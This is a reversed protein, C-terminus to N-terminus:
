RVLLKKLKSGGNAAKFHLFYLGPSLEQVSLAHDHVEGKGELLRKRITRGTADRLSQEVTGEGKVRIRVRKDAPNPHVDVAFPSKEAEKVSLVNADAINIDDIYINNGGDSIFQFKFRLGEVNYGASLTQKVRLTKWDQPDPNKYYGKMPKGSLLDAVDFTKRIDWVGNCSKQAFVKLKGKNDSDIQRYAVKFSLAVPDLDSADITETVLEYHGGKTAYYNELIFSSHGSAGTRETHAWETGDSSPLPMVKGRQVPKGEMDEKYPTGAGKADLVRIFDKEHVALTDKGQRVELEVDYLGPKQYSVEPLPDNLAFFPTGKHFTWRRQEIGHYSRDKFQVKQGTCVIRPEARLDVRCLPNKQVGTMKLNQSSTLKELGNINNLATKMRGKQGKSFMNQCQDYSMYNEIQDVVDTNFPSPGLTDTSCSNQSMSCGYTEEKAPPTDCIRDGNSSCDGSCGGQFTHFLGLCHGVEHTATRGESDSTGITGFRDNRMVVGYDEGIGGWPFEAYGLLTGQGSGKLTNALWINFYEDTPWRILDKVADDANYTLDSRTRTVGNTCNGDPGYRALRLIIDPDSALSDFVSRTDTTDSNNRTFDENMVRMGDKIQQYSINGKGEDHIVHVVVPITDNQGARQASSKDITKQIMKEWREKGMKEITRDLREDTGCWDGQAYTGTFPLLLLFLLLGSQLTRYLDEINPLPSM